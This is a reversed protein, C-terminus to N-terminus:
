GRFRHSKHIEACYPCKFSVVDRGQMDEEINEIDIEREDVLEGNCPLRIQINRHFKRCPKSPKDFM